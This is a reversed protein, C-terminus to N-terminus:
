AGKSNKFLHRMKKSLTRRKGKGAPFKDVLGSLESVTCKSVCTIMKEKAASWIPHLPCPNRDNCEQLGMVCRVFPSEVPDDLAQMVRLVTLEKPKMNLTFGGGPGPRSVLIGSKALAQFIKAVYAQPVKTRRSVEGISVGQKGNQSSFLSLARVAYECTKSYIM